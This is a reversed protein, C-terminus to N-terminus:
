NWKIEELFERENYPVPIKAKDKAWQLVELDGSAAAIVSSRSPMKGSKIM